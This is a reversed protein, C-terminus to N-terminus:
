CFTLTGWCNRYPAELGVINGNAAPHGPAVINKVFTSTLDTLQLTFADELHMAWGKPVAAAYGPFRLSEKQVSIGFGATDIDLQHVNNLNYPIVATSLDSVELGAQLQSKISDGIGDRLVALAVGMLGFTQLANIVGSTSQTIEISAMIGDVVASLNGSGSTDIMAQKLRNGSGVASYDVVAGDYSVKVQRANALCGIFTALCFDSLGLNYAQGFDNPNTVAVDTDALMNIHAGGTLYGSFTNLSGFSMPGKATASGIRIGVIERLSASNPNRIAFQYFPNTLVFDKMQAQQATNVTATTCNATGCDRVAGPKSIGTPNVTICAGSSNAICGLSFNSIDIDCDGAGNTGGCGVQLNKINANLAVEAEIGFTYFGMNSASNYPNGVQGPALYSLNFLAQGETQALEEDSLSVMGTDTITNDAESEDSFAWASHSFLASASLALALTLHKM